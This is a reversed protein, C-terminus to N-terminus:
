INGFKKRYQSPLLGTHQKFQKTFHDARTYGLSHAIEQCLKNPNHLLNDCAKEIRAKERYQYPSLGARQKFYLRFTSYSMGLQEAVQQLDVQKFDHTLLACAHDFWDSTPSSQTVPIALEMMEFMLGTFRAARSSLSLLSGTHPQQLLEQLRAIWPAPDELQWVPQSEHFYGEQYYRDFTEGRFNVALKHWSDGIGPGFLHKVHPFALFFHGYALLCHLSNIDRYYGKGGKLMISFTYYPYIQWKRNDAWTNKRLSRSVGASTLGGLPPVVNDQFYTDYELQLAPNVYKKPM